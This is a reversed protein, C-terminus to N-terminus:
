VFERLITSSAQPFLPFGKSIIHCKSTFTSSLEILWESIKTSFHVGSFLIAAVHIGKPNTQSTKLM